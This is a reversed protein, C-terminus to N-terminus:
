RIGLYVNMMRNYNGQAYILLECIDRVAGYGGRRPTVWHAYQRALHHGNAPAIALEAKLMVPLDVVDDGAYAIENAAFGLNQLIDEYVPLKDAHGQYLNKVGLDHMRHVVLQSKRGTLVAVTVGSQQLMKMGHGDLSNFAKYEEGQNDFYLGGDTMVGDVDLILLKIGAARKLVDEGADFDPKLIGSDM